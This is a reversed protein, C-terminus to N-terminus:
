VVRNRGRQKALYLAKDAETYLTDFDRKEKATTSSLGISATVPIRTGEWVVVSAELRERLKEALRRGAEASTNPLLVIFEEGGLRGVLDTSRVTSSALTAVHRLVADGAPHGWTDNVRKFHDLDLLLITTASGQRQARDLERRSLEVFTNRNFLGTLGDQRTLRELDRQKQNLEANAKELQRQQLRITCFQRWMFCSGVCGLVCAALGNIRNSLLLEPQLQTWGMVKFFALYSLTYLVAAVRPRLYMVGGAVLCALLFATINPTIAQDVAVLLLGILMTLAANGTGLWRAVLTHRRQGAKHALWGMGLAVAVIFLHTWVLRLNWDAQAPPPETGLWRWLFVILLVGNLAVAVPWMMRLRFLNVGTADDAVLADETRWRATTKRLSNLFIQDM